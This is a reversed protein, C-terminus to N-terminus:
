RQKREGGHYIKRQPDLGEQIVTLILGFPVWVLHESEDIELTPSLNPYLSIIVKDIYDQFLNEDM